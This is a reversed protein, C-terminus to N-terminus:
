AAIEYRGIGANGGALVIGMGYKEGYLDTKNSKKSQNSDIEKIYKRSYCGCSQSVGKKLNDGLVEVLSGCDCRCLWVIRHRGNLQVRDQIREIVVLRGYRNGELNQFAGM